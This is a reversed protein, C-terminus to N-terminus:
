NRPCGREPLAPSSAVSFDPQAAFNSQRLRLIAPPKSRRRRSKQMRSVCTSEICRPLPRALSVADKHHAHLVKIGVAAPALIDFRSVLVQVPESDIPIFPRIDATRTTGIRLAQSVVVVQSRPSLQNLASKDIRAPTRPFIQCRRQARRMFARSGVSVRQVVLRHVHERWPQYRESRSSGGRQSSWRPNNARPPEIM